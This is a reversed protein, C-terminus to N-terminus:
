ITRALSLAQAFLIGKFGTPEHRYYKLPTEGLRFFEPAREFRFNNEKLNYLLGTKLGPLVSGGGCFYFMGPLEGDPDLVLMRSIVDALATAWEKLPQALSRRVLKVDGESLADAAFAIKLAEADEYSCKFAQSMARTFFVGGLPVRGATILADHRIFMCDTGAAGVDFVLADKAPVIVALSQPAPVLRYIEVELKGALQEIGRIMAPHCAAGYVSLALTRGRLGVPENVRQNDLRLDALTATQPSWDAMVGPLTFLQQKTLRLARDWLADLEKPAIPEIASKRRQTVTFLKGVLTRGPLTFLAHDPVIKRGTLAETADEAEQLATNISGALAAAQARGGAVDRGNAPVLSHGLVTVQEGDLQAVAVKVTDFGLDILSVYRPPPEAAPRPFIASPWPLLKVM